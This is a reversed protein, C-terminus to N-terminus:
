EETEEMEVADYEATANWPTGEFNYPVRKPKPKGGAIFHAASILKKKDAKELEAITPLKDVKKVLGATRLVDVEGPTLDTRLSRNGSSEILKYGFVKKGVALAEDAYKEAGTVVDKILSANDLLFKLRTENDYPLGSLCATSIAANTRKPCTPKITCYKCHDGDVYSQWPIEGTDYLSQAAAQALEVAWKFRQEIKSIESEDFQWTTRRNHQEISQPQIIGVQYKERPGFEAIAGLLYISLQDNEFAHVPVAGNKLDDVIVMDDFVAIFDATGEVVQGAIDCKVPHEVFVRAGQADYESVIGFAEKAAEVDAKDYTVETSKGTEGNEVQETKGVLRDFYSADELLNLAEEVHAMVGRGTAAYVNDEREVPISGAIAAVACPRWRHAASPRLNLMENPAKM